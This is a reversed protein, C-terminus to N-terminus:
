GVFDRIMRVGDGNGVGAMNVGNRVVAPVRGGLAEPGVPPVVACVLLRFVGIGGRGADSGLCAAHAAISGVVIQLGGDHDRQEYLESGIAFFKVMVDPSSQACVTSTMLSSPPGSVSMSVPRM